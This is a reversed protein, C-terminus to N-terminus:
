FPLTGDDEPLETFKSRDVRGTVGPPFPSEEDKKRSEGFYVRDVMVEWETHKKEEKDIWHRSQLRGTVTLMTGKDAYQHVFNASNRFSVCNIFDTQKDQGRETYDRDVALTFSTVPVGNSTMRYEPAKTCRGSITIINLSM